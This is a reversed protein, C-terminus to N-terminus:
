DDETLKNGAEDARGHWSEITKPADIFGDDEGGDRFDKVASRRDDSRVAGVM